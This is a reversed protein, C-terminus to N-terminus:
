RVAFAKLTFCQGPERVCTRNGVTEDSGWPPVKASIAVDKRRNTFIISGSFDVAIGRSTLMGGKGGKLLVTGDHTAVVKYLGQPLDLTGECTTRRPSKWDCYIIGYSDDDGRIREGNSKRIVVSFDRVNTDTADASVAQPTPAMADLTIFIEEALVPLALSFSFISVALARIM